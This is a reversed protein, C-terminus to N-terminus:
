SFPGGVSAIFEKRAHTKDGTLAWGVRKGQANTCIAQFNPSTGEVQWTGPEHPVVVTVACATKVSVPMVPYTLQTPNGGLTAGVSKAQHMLPMVFQLLTGDVEACDGVAYIHPHSTELFRNVRIGRGTSLKAMSALSLNPILGIASLILDATITDGTDLFVEYGSPLAEIATVTADGIYRVGQKVLSDIIAQGAGPPLLHKLPTASKSVFTVQIGQKSLDHAFETGILGSGAILVQACGALRTRFVHYDQRSNVQLVGAHTGRAPLTAPTTGLALVCDRYTITQHAYQLTQKVPDLHTVTTHSLITANLQTAMDTASHVILDEATKGQSLATSLSPKSYYSGDEETIIFLPTTKDHKRIERATNYGALGSGVIVIPAEMFGGKLVFSFFHILGGM